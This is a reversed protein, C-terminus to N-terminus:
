KRQAARYAMPSLGYAVRFARYLDSPVSYGVREAIDSVSLRTRRLLEAAVKVRIANRYAIPAKGYAAVFRRRLQSESLHWLAALEAATQGEAYHLALFEALLRMDKPVDLARQPPSFSAGIELLFAALRLLPTLPAVFSFDAVQALMGYPREHEQWRLVAPVASASLIARVATEEGVTRALLSRVAEEHLYLFRCECEQGVGLTRSYHRKGPPVFILDGEALTSYEGECLFLGNGKVCVGVEYRDHYHLLPFDETRPLGVPRADCYVPEEGRTPLPEFRTKYREEELIAHKQM